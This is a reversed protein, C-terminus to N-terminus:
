VHKRICSSGDIHYYHYYNLHNQNKWLTLIYLTHCKKVGETEMWAKLHEMIPRALEQRKKKREDDSMNAETCTREIHYLKQIEGLAFEAASKNEDLAQEFHRRIHAMCNVLQV